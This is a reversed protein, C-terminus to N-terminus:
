AAVKSLEEVGEVWQQIQPALWTDRAEPTGVFGGLYRHGDLQQFNFEELDKMAEPLAADKSICISKDPEPYYGRQPGLHMLLEMAPRIDKTKGSAFSRVTAMILANGKGPTRHEINLVVGTDGEFRIAQGKRLNTAVVAM